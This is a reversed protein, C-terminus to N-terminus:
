AIPVERFEGTKKNQQWKMGERPERPPETPKEPKENSPIYPSNASVGAPQSHRISNMRIELNKRIQGISDKFTKENWDAELNKAALKLSEDTSSNGGKYVTGLESTLDNIQAELRHAINGPEGPLQKATALSAKNFIKWQSTKGTKQWQDYLGEIIGLSDSTFSVAQRLREQQAGNLTALHKQTAHWDSEAQALNFGQKALEARVKAANRYLGTTTPPQDGHAIADAIAKADSADVEPKSRQAIAGRAKERNAATDALKNAELYDSIDKDKATEAPEKAAKQTNEIFQKVRPLLEAAKQEDGAALADSYAKIVDHPKEIPQIPEKQPMKGTALFDAKEFPTMEGAVEANQDLFAQRGARTNEQAGREEREGKNVTQERAARVAANTLRADYNQPSGPIATEISRGIPFISGIVDLVKKWGSLKPQGQASLDEYAKQQPGVAPMTSGQVPQSPAAMEAKGTIPPLATPTPPSAPKAPAPSVAPMADPAAGGLAAKYEPSGPAYSKVLGSGSAESRAAPASTLPPLPQTAAVQSVPQSPTRPVPPLFQQRRRQEDTTEAEPDVGIAPLPAYEVDM